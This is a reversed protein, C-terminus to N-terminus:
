KDKLSTTTVTRLIVNVVAIFMFMIGYHEGLYPQLVSFNMEIIGLVAVVINFWLTKSKIWNM